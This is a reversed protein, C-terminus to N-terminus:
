VHCLRPESILTGLPLHQCHNAKSAQWAGHPGSSGEIQQLRMLLEKFLDEENVESNLLLMALYRLQINVPTEMQGVFINPFLQNKEYFIEEEWSSEKLRM